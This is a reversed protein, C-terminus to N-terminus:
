IWFQKKAQSRLHKSNEQSQLWPKFTGTSHISHFLVKLGKSLLQLQLTPEPATPMKAHLGMRRAKGRTGQRSVGPGRAKGRQCQLIM